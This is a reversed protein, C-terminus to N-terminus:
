SVGANLALAFFNSLSKRVLFPLLHAKLSFYRPQSHFSRPIDVYQLFRMSNRKVSDHVGPKELAKLVKAFHKKILEPHDEVCYSMPWAARQVVRYEDNLFLKFLEDFRKQDNGVWKVIRRCNAKSHEKLITERLKM